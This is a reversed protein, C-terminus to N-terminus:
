YNIIASGNPNRFNVQLVNKSEKVFNQYDNFWIEKIQDEELTYTSSTETQTSQTYTRQGKPLYNTKMVQRETSTTHVLDPLFDSDQQGNFSITGLYKLQKFDFLHWKGILYPREKQKPNQNKVDLILYYQAEWLTKLNYLDETLQIMKSQYDDQQIKYEGLEIKKQTNKLHKLENKGMYGYTDFMSSDLTIDNLTFINTLYEKQYRVSDSYGGFVPFNITFVQSSDIVKEELSSLQEKIFIYKTNLSDLHSNIDDLLTNKRNIFISDQNEKIKEVGSDFQDSCSFTLSIILGFFLYLYQSRM